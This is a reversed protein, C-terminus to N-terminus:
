ILVQRDREKEKTDEKQAEMLPEMFDKNWEEVQEM